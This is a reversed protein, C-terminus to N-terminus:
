FNYAPASEIRYTFYSLIIMIFTIASYIIIGKNTFLDRVAQKGILGKSGDLVIYKRNKLFLILGATGLVTLIVLYIVAAGISVGTLTQLIVGSFLNSLSHLIIVLVLSGTKVMLFAYIMGLIFTYVIQIVGLSVGHAIAFCYASALIYLREGHKLLKNALLHRLVFEEVVTNFVLLLILTLPSLSTAAGALSVKGGFATVLSTFIFSFVIM